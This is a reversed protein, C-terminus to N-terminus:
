KLQETLTVPDVTRFQLVTEVPIVAPKGRTAAVAGGGAAGGAAAGIAAGKGGGAAAGIIAGLAAGIGVKAADERKSEPGQKTFTSTRIAVNQGDSTHIRTLQLDLQALGRIRGAEVSNVVRGEVRAGREAIVFGDVALPQDLTGSFTDGARNRESSLSEGLRVSLVTGAPITVTAPQPKAQAAPPPPAPADAPDAHPLEPATAVPTPAPAPATNGASERAPAVPVAPQSAAAETRASERQAAKPQKSPETKVRSAVAEPKAPAQPAAVPPVPSTAGAAPATDQIVPPTSSVRPAIESRLLLFSVTAAAIAGALFGVLVKSNM